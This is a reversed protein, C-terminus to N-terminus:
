PNGTGGTNSNAHFSFSLQYSFWVLVAGSAAYAICGLFAVPLSMAGLQVMGRTADIAESTNKSGGVTAAGAFLYVFLYFLFALASAFISIWGAVNLIWYVVWVSNAVPRPVVRLVVPSQQRAPNQAAQAQPSAQRAFLVPSVGQQFAQLMMNLDINATTFGRGSARLAQNVSAKWDDFDM